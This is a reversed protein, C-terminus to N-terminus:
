FKTGNKISNKNEILDSKMNKIFNNIENEKKLYLEENIDLEIKGNFFKANIFEDKYELIPRKQHYLEWYFIADKLFNRAVLDQIKEKNDNLADKIVEGKNKSYFLIFSDIKNESSIYKTILSHLITEKHKDLVNLMFKSTLTKFLYNIPINNYYTTRFLFKDKEYSFVYGSNKTKQSFIKAEGKTPVLLWNFFSNVFANIRRNITLENHENNNEETINGVSIETSIETNSKEKKILKLFDDKNNLMYIFSIFNKRLFSLYYYHRMIDTPMYNAIKLYIIQYPDKEKPKIDVNSAYLYIREKLEEKIFDMDMKITPYSFNFTKKIKSM